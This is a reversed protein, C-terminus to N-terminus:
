VTNIALEYDEPTDLDTLISINDVAVEAVDEPFRRRLSKMGEAPDFTSIVPIYKTAFLLPHGRKGGASPVVIGHSGHDWSEIVAQIVSIEVEPQDGLFLMVADTQPPVQDLGCLVSSFMGETYKENICFDVPYGGLVQRVAESNAGLVVTINGPLVSFVRSVVQEIVSKGKYPLLMKPAGMRKSEGAALIIARINGM